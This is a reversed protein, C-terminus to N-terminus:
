FVMNWLFWVNWLIFQHYIGGLILIRKRHFTHFIHNEDGAYWLYGVEERTDKDYNYCLKPFVSVLFVVM